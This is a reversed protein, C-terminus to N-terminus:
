PTNLVHDLSCRRALFSRPAHALRPQALGAVSPRPRLPRTSVRHPARTSLRKSTALRASIADGPRGYRGGGRSRSRRRASRRRRRAARRGRPRRRRAGARRRARRCTGACDVQDDVGGPSRTGVRDMGAVAEEGLVGVEGARDDVGPEGPDPRVGGGDLRHAGLDLGLPQHARGADGHELHGVLRGVGVQRQQHLGGGASTPAAHADYAPEGVQGALDRGRLGLRQRREAVPGDEELRVDLVAAVDLDLDDAAAVAHQDQALPVARDLAPVLLDELLGRSRRQRVLGPGGQVVGTPPDRLGDVVAAGPRDLEQHVGPFGAAEPEQLHVGAQLDLVGHRLQHPVGVQDLELELDGLRTRPHRSAAQPVRLCIVRVAVRDLDPQVGLVRGGVVLRLGPHQM